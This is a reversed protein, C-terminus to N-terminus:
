GLNSRAYAGIIRWIPQAGVWQALDFLSKEARLPLNELGLLFTRPPPTPKANSWRTTSVASFSKAGPPSHSRGDVAVNLFGATVEFFSM